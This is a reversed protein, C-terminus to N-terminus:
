KRIADVVLFEFLDQLISKMHHCYTIGSSKLAIKKIILSHHLLMRQTHVMSCYVYFTFHLTFFTVVKQSTHHKEVVVMFIQRKQWELIDTSDQDSLNLETPFYINSVAAATFLSFLIM